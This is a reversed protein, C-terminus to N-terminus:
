GFWHEDLKTLYCDQSVQKCETVEMSFRNPQCQAHSKTKVEKM